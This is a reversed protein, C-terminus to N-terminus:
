SRAEMQEYLHTVYPPYTTAKQAKAVRVEDGDIDTVTVIGKDELETTDAVLFRTDTVRDSLISQVSGDMIHIVFKMPDPLPTDADEMAIRAEAIADNVMDKFYDHRYKTYFQEETDYCCCGLYSVGWEVGDRWASVKACFWAYPKRILARYNKEPLGCEKIFHHRMNIEEPLAEFCIIFGDKEFLPTM